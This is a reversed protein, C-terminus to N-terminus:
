YIISYFTPVTRRRRIAWYNRIISKRIVSIQSYDMLNTQRKSATECNKINQKVTFSKTMDSETTTSQSEFFRIVTEFAYRAQSATSSHPPLPTDSQDCSDKDDDSPKGIISEIIGGESVTELNEM